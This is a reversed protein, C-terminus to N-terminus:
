LCENVKVYTDLTKKLDDQIQKMIGLAELLTLDKKNLANSQEVRLIKELAEVFSFHYSMNRFDIKNQNKNFVKEVVTYTGEECKINFRENIEVM